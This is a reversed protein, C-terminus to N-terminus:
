VEDGCGAGLARGFPPGRLEPGEATRVIKHRGVAAVVRGVLTHKM